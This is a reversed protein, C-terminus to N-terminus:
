PIQVSARFRNQRQHAAGLTNVAKRYREAAHKEDEFKTEILKLEQLQLQLEEQRDQLAQELFKIYGTLRQQGNVVRSSYVSLEHQLHGEQQAVERSLTSLEKYVDNELQQLLSVVDGSGLRLQMVLLRFRDVFSAVEQNAFFHVEDPLAAYQEDSLASTVVDPPLEVVKLPAERRKRENQEIARLLEFDAQQDSATGEFVTAGGEEQLHELELAKEQAQLEEHSPQFRCSLEQLFVQLSKLLSCQEVKGLREMAKIEASCFALSRLLVCLFFSFCIIGMFFLYPFIFAGAMITDAQKRKRGIRLLRLFAVALIAAALQAYSRLSAATSSVAEFLVGAAATAEAEETGGAAAAVSATALDDALNFVQSHTSALVHFTWVVVSGAMVGFGIFDFLNFLDDVFFVGLCLGFSYDEREQKLSRRLRHLEVFFSCGFFLLLAVSAVQLAIVTVTKLDWTSYPQLSFAEVFFNPSISGGRNRYFKICAELLINIQNQNLLVIHITLEEVADRLVNQEALKRLFEKFATADFVPQYECQLSECSFGLETPFSAEQRLTLLVRVSRTTVSSNWNYLVLQQYTHGNPKALKPLAEGFLASNSPPALFSMLGEEAVLWSYLDRPTSIGFLPQDPLTISANVDSVGLSPDACTFMVPSLPFTTNSVARGAMERMEAAADVSLQLSITGILLAVFAVVFLKKWADQHDKQMQHRVLLYVKAVSPAPAKPTTNAALNPTFYSEEKTAFETVDFEKFFGYSRIYKEMSAPDVYFGREVTPQAAYLSLPDEIGIAQWVWPPYQPPADSYEDSVSHSDGKSERRYYNSGSKRRNRLGKKKNEMAKLERAERIDDEFEDAVLMELREQEDLKYKILSQEISQACFDYKRLVVATLFTFGFVSFLLFLPVFFIGEYRPSLPTFKPIILTDVHRFTHGGLVHRDYYGAFSGASAGFSINGFSVFILVIALMGLSCALIYFKVKRFAMQLAKTGIGAIAPLLRTILMCGTLGTLSGFVTCVQQAAANARFLNDYDSILQFFTAENTASPAESANYYGNDGVTVEIKPALLAIIQTTTFSALFSLLMLLHFLLFITWGGKLWSKFGLKKMGAYECLLYLFLFALTLGLSTYRVLSYSQASFSILSSVLVQPTQLTGSSTFAFLVACHSFTETVPNIAFFDVVTSITRRDAIVPLPVFWPPYRSSAQNQQLANQAAQMSAECIVQYHGGKQHFAKDEGTPSFPYSYAFRSGAPSTLPNDSRLKTTAITSAAGTAAMPWMGEYGLQFGDADELEVQRFTLRFCNGVIRASGFNSTQSSPGYLLPIFGYTLWSAVDAKSKLVPIDVPRGSDPTAAVEAPALAVEEAKAIQYSISNFNSLSPALASKLPSAIGDGAEYIKTIESAYSLFLLLSALYLLSIVLQSVPQRQKLLQQVEEVNKASEEFRIPFLRRRFMERRMLPTQGRLVDGVSTANPEGLLLRKELSRRKARSEKKTLSTTRKPSLPPGTCEKHEGTLEAAAADEKGGQLPNERVPYLADQEDPQLSGSQRAM